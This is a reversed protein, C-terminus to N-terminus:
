KRTIMNHCATVMDYAKRRDKDSLSVVITAVTLGGTVVGAIWTLSLAMINYLGKFM